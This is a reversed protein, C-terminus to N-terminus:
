GNSGVGFRERYANPSVGVARKMARRMREDDDFGTKRAIVTIPLSTEELLTRAAAVRFQEIAKAPTSGTAERYVRSFNRASMGVKEALHDVSLDGDLNDMVRAHLADFRGDVDGVQRLLAPSFQSQGGPRVMYVVMSRALRIAMKRGSDEAVMALAMDIGTTVGASTWIHDDQVFIRDRQVEVSRYMKQMDDCAYWHTVARRHNLLGGEALILSGTCVAAVRGASQALACTSEVFDKDQLARRAGYGGAVLLTHIQRGHWADMPETTLEIGTDTALAGGHKSVLVIEYAEGGLRCANTFVQIPGIADLMMVDPFLVVVIIPRPKASISPM